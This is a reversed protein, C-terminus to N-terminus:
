GRGRRSLLRQVSRVLGTGGVVLLLTAATVAEDVEVVGGADLWYLGAGTLAALGVVLGARDPTRLEAV